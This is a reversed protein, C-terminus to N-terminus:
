INTKKQLNQIKKIERDMMHLIMRMVKRQKDEVYTMSKSQIKQQITKKHTTKALLNLPKMTKGNKHQEQEPVPNDDIQHREKAKPKVKVKVRVKVVRRSIEDKLHLMGQLSLPHDNNNKDHHYRRHSVIPQRIRQGKHIRVIEGGIIRLVVDIASIQQHQVKQMLMDKLSERRVKDMDNNYCRQRMRIQM